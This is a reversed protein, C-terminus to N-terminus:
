KQRGATNITEIGHWTAISSAANQKGGADTVLQATSAFANNLNIFNQDLEANTLPADKSSAGTERTIITPM